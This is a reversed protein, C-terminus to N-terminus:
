PQTRNKQQPKLLIDLAIDLWDKKPQKVEVAQPTEPKQEIAAQEVPPAETQKVEAVVEAPKEEAVVLAPEAQKEEVPDPKAPLKLSVDRVRLDGITPEAQDPLEPLKGANWNNFSDAVLNTLQELPIEDLSSFHPELGTTAQLKGRAAFFQSLAQYKRLRSVIGSVDASVKEAQSAVGERYKDTTIKAIREDVDDIQASQLYQAQSNALQIKSLHVQTVIAMQMMIRRQAAYEKNQDALRKVAPMSLLNWLNYSIGASSEIWNKNVYYSNASYQAGLSFTLDPFMKLLSKRAEEVAIRAEYISQKLDTNTLMARVEFEDAATGVFANPVALMEPDELLPKANVPLNILQNLELRSTALEQEITTLIKVNDLLTKQYKLSDLPPRLGSVEVKQADSIAASAQLMTAEIDKKLAQAAAARLYASQVDQVLIHMTRRRRESAVVIRDANQRANLYGVGFDLLSWNLTLGAHGYDKDSSAFTGARSEGTRPDKSDTIFYNNRYSYGAQAVVKPLMDYKSVDYVGLAIAQELLKSRHDLNYKLGRAVAENLTLLQGAPEVNGQAKLRDEHLLKQQQGVNLPKPLYTCGVMVSAAAFYFIWKTHKSM